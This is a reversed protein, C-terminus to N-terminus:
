RTGFLTVNRGEGVIQTENIVASTAATIKMQRDGGRDRVGVWRDVREKGADIM